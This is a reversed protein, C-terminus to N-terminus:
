LSQNEVRHEVGEATDDSVELYFVTSYRLAVLHLEEICSHFVIGVFNTYQLHIHYRAFCYRCAFYSIDDATDFVSLFNLHAVGYGM